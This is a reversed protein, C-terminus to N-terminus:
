VTSVYNILTHVSQIHEVSMVCLMARTWRLQHVACKRFEFILESLIVVLNGHFNSENHSLLMGIM